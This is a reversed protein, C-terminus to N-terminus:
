PQQRRYGHPAGSSVSIQGTVPEAPSGEYTATPMNMEKLVLALPALTTDQEMVAGGMVTAGFNVACRDLIRTRKVRLIMDEFTHFQLFGNIVCDNGFQVANWDSCQLPQTVITGHGIRCGMLRLVHSALVTGAFFQLSSRCWVFFCDQTFFYAFHKWSWFPTSHDAGWQRGVLCAKIVAALLILTLETLLFSVLVNAVLNLGLRSLGLYSIAFVLGETIRLTGISFLDNLVVRTLFLAFGPLTENEAEFSTSAFRVPPNGAVTIPEGLRSRM